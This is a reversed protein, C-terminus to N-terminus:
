GALFARMAKRGDAVAQIFNRSFEADQQKWLYVCQRTLSFQRCVKAVNGHKRVNDIISQKLHKKNDRM